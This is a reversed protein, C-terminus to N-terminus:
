KLFEKNELVIRRMSLEMFLKISIGKRSAIKRVSDYLPIPLNKTISLIENQEICTFESHTLPCPTHRRGM